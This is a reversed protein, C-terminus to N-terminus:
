ESMILERALYRKGYESQTRLTNIPDEYLKRERAMAKICAELAALRQAPQGIMLKSELEGLALFRGTLQDIPTENHLWEGNESFRNYGKSLGPGDPWIIEYESPIGYKRALTTLLEVRRVQNNQGGVDEKSCALNLFYAGSKLDDHKSKDTFLHAAAAVIVNYARDPVDRSILLKANFYDGNKM